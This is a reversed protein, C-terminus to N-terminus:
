CARSQAGSLQWSYLLYCSNEHPKRPNYPNLLNPPSITLKNCYPRIPPWVADPLCCDRLTAAIAAQDLRQGVMEIGSFRQPRGNLWKPLALDQYTTAQGPLHDVYIAQGDALEFIAKARIMRGYAGQVLEQWFTHLSSPDLVQATLPAQWVDTHEPTSINPTSLETADLGAISNVVVEDAWQHWESEAPTDAGVIAVRRHAVQELWPLNLGLHCGLEVYITPQSALTVAEPLATEIQLQPLEIKLRHADVGVTAPAIYLVPKSAEACALLQAGIWHTKGAGWPGAVVTLM